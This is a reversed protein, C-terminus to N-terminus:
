VESNEEDADLAPTPASPPHSIAESLPEHHEDRILSKGDAIKAVIYYLGPIVFVGVITGLLM